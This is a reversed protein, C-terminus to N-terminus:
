EDEGLEKLIENQTAIIVNLGDLIEEQLSLMETETKQQM